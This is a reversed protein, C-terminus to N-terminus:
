TAAPRSLLDDIHRLAERKTPFDEAVVTETDGDARIVYWGTEPESRTYYWVAPAKKGNAKIMVKGNALATGDRLAAVCRVFGRHFAQPPMPRPEEAWTHGCATCAKVLRDRLVMRLDPLGHCEPCREDAIM